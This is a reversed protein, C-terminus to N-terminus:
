TTGIGLGAFDVAAYMQDVVAFIPKKFRMSANSSEVNYLWMYDWGYKAPVTIGGVVINTANPNAQFEYTVEAMLSDKQKGGSAGMFLVTGAPFGRFTGSNVKGTYAYLNNIFATDIYSISIEYSESWALQPIVIDVGEPSGDPTMGIPINSDITFGVPL